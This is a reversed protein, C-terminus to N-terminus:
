PLRHSFTKILRVMDKRWTGDEESNERECWRESRREGGECFGVSLVRMRDGWWVKKDAFEIVFAWFRWCKVVFGDRM